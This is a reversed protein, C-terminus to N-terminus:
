SWGLYKRLKDNVKYTIFIPLETTPYDLRRKLDRLSYVGKEVYDTLWEQIKRKDAQRFRVFAFGDCLEPVCNGEFKGELREHPGDTFYCNNEPDNRFLRLEGGIEQCITREGRLHFVSLWVRDVGNEDMKNLIGRINRFFFLTPLEIATIDLVWTDKKPARQLVYDFQNACCDFRRQSFDIKPSNLSEIYEKTEDESFDDVIVVKDAVELLQPILNQLYIYDNHCTVTVAFLSKNGM